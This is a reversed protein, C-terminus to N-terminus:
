PMYYSLIYRLNNKVIQEESRPRQAVPPVLHKASIFDRCQEKKAETFNDNGNDQYVLSSSGIHSRNKWQFSGAHFMKSRYGRDGYQDKDDTERNEYMYSTDEPVDFMELGEGLDPSNKAFQQHNTKDKNQDTYSIEQPWVQAKWSASGHHQRQIHYQPKNENTKSTYTQQQQRPYPQRPNCQMRQYPREYHPIDPLQESFERDGNCTMKEDGGYFQHPVKGPYSYNEQFDENVFQTRKSPSKFDYEDIVDDLMTFDGYEASSIDSDSFSM